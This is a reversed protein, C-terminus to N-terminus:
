HIASTMLATEHIVAATKVNNQGDGTPPPEPMTLNPFPAFPSPPLLPFPLSLRRLPLRLIFLLLLLGIFLSSLLLILPTENILQVVSARSCQDARLFLKVPNPSFFFFLFFVVVFVNNRDLFVLLLKITPNKRVRITQRWTCNAAM